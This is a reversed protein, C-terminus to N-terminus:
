DGFMVDSRPGSEEWEVKSQAAGSQKTVLGKQLCLGMRLRAPLAQRKGM